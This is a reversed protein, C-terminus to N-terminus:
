TIRITYRNDLRGGPRNESQAGGRLGNHRPFTGFSSLIIGGLSWGEGLCNGRFHKPSPGPATAETM